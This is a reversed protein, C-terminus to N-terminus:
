LTGVATRLPGPRVRRFDAPDAEWLESFVGQPTRILPVGNVFLVHSPFSSGQLTLTLGVGGPTCVARMAVRHWILSSTRPCVALFAPEALTHPHGAGTWTLDFGAPTGVGRLGTIAMAPPTLCGVGPVCELGVDTDPGPRLLTAATIAGGACSVRVTLESYLRYGRDKADTAAASIAIRDLAAAFAALRVSAPVPAPTVDCPFFPLSGVAAGIRAIYSKAVLKIDITRTVPAPPAPAPAPVRLFIEVRRNRAGDRSVPQTEGKTQPTITVTRELGPRTRALADLLGQRAADARRMGLSLNYGPDGEPDTHGVMGIPRLDGSAAADRVCLAIRALTAHHQATLRSQDFDFGDLITPESLGTCAGAGALPASPAPSPSGAGAAATLAERTAPGIIGDPVLGRRRQFEQVAARTRPGLVGDTALGTGLAANLISQAWRVFDPSLATPPQAPQAFSPTAM